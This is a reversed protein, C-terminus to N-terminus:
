MFFGIGILIRSTCISIRISDYLLQAVLVRGIAGCESNAFIEDGEDPLAAYVVDGIIM